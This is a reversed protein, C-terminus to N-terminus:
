GAYLQLLHRRRALSQVRRWLKKGNCGIFTDAFTPRAVDTYNDVSM